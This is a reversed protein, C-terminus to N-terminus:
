DLELNFTFVASDGPALNRHFDLRYMLHVEAPDWLEIMEIMTNRNVTWSYRIQATGDHLEFYVQAQHLLKEGEGWVLVLHQRRQAVMSRHLQRIMEPNLATM